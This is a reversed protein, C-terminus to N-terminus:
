NGVIKVRCTCEFAEFQAIKRIVNKKELNDGMKTRKEM